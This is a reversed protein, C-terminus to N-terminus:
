RHRAPEDHLGRSRVTDNSQPRLNHRVGLLPVQRLYRIRRDEDERGCPIQLENISHRLISADAAYRTSCLAPYGEEGGKGEPRWALKKLIVCGVSVFVVDLLNVRVSEPGRGPPKKQGPHAKIKPQQIIM